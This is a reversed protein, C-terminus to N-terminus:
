ILSHHLYQVAHTNGIGVMEARKTRISDMTRHAVDANEM